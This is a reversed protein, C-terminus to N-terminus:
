HFYKYEDGYYDKFPSGDTYNGIILETYGHKSIVISPYGNKDYVEVRVYHIKNNKGCEIMKTTFPIFSTTMTSYPFGNRGEFEGEKRVYEKLRNIDGIPNQWKMFEGVAYSLCNYTMNGSHDASGFEPKPTSPGYFSNSYINHYFFSKDRLKYYSMDEKTVHVKYTITTTGSSNTAILKMTNDIEWYDNLPQGQSGKKTTSEKYMQDNIAYSGHYYINSGSSLNLNGVDVGNVEIRLESPQGKVTAMFYYQKDKLLYAGNRNVLVNDIAFSEVEPKASYVISLIPQSVSKEHTNFNIERNWITRPNSSLLVMGHNQYTGNVWSKVLNTIDITCTTDSRPAFQAHAVSSDYFPQNWWKIDERWGETVRGIMIENGIYTNDPRYLNIRANQIVAGKPITDIGSFRIYSRYDISGSCSNSVKGVKMYTRQGYSGSSGSSQNSAVYTDSIISNGKRLLLTPDVTVPYERKEENLWENSPDIILMYEKSETITILEQDIDTSMNGNADIMFPPIFSYVEVNNECFSISNDRNHVLELGDTFIKFSFGLNGLDPSKIFIDEKILEPEITYILDVGEYVDEYRVVDKLQKTITKSSDKKKDADFKNDKSIKVKEVGELAWGFSRGNVDIHILNNEDIIKNFKVKYDNSVNVYYDNTEVLTNDTEKWVGEEMYHTREPYLVQLSQGTTLEFTKTNESRLEIIEDVIAQELDLEDVSEVREDLFVAADNELRCKELDAKTTMNPILM